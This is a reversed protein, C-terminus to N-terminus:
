FLRGEAVDLTAELPLPPEARLHARHDRLHVTVVPHVDSETDPHHQDLAAVADLPDPEGVTRHEVDVEHHDPDPDAGFVAQSSPEPRVISLPTTHSAVQVAAGPTTAAPSTARQGFRRKPSTM